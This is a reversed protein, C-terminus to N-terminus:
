ASVPATGVNGCERRDLKVKKKKDVKPSVHKSVLGSRCMYCQAVGMYSTPHKLLGTGHCLSCVDHNQDFPTGTAASYAINYTHKEWSLLM